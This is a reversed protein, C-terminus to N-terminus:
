TQTIPGGGAVACIPAMATAAAAAATTAMIVFVIPARSPVELLRKLSM